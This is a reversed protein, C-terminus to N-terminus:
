EDRSIHGSIVWTGEVMILGVKRACFTFIQCVLTLRPNVNMGTHLMTLFRSLAEIDPLQEEVGVQTTLEDFLAQILLGLSITERTMLAKVIPPPMHRDSRMVLANVLALLPCPGNKNQILMPSERLQGTCDTWNIHRISYTEAQQEAQRKLEADSLPPLPHIVPTPQTPTKGSAGTSSNNDEISYKNFRPDHPMRPSDNLDILDESASPVFNSGQSRSTNTYNGHVQLPTALYEAGPASQYQTANQPERQEYLYARDATTTPASPTPSYARDGTWNLYENPVSGNPAPVNDPHALPANDSRDIISRDAAITM